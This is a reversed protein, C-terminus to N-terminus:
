PSFGHCCHCTALIVLAIYSFNSEEVDFRRRKGRFAIGQSALPTHDFNHENMFKLTRWVIDFVKRVDSRDVAIPNVNLQLKRTRRSTLDVVPAYNKNTQFGLDLPSALTPSGNQEMDSVDLHWIHNHALVNRILFVEILEEKTSLTPFYRSLLEPISPRGTVPDAQRKFRLRAVYSELLAVLLVVVAASYGNEHLGSGGPGHGAAPEKLLKELLDAIPQMYASGVVSIVDPIAPKSM